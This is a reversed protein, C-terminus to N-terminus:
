SVTVNDFFIHGVESTINVALDVTIKLGIVRKLNEPKCSDGNLDRYQFWSLPFSNTMWNTLVTDHRFFYTVENGDEDLAIITFGMWYHANFQHTDVNLMQKESWDQEEDFMFTVVPNPYGSANNTWFMLTSNSKVNGDEDSAVKCVGNVGPKTNEVYFPFSILDHDEVTAAPVTPQDDTVNYLMLNDMYICNFQGAVFNSSMHVSFYLGVVKTLDADKLYDLNVYITRWTNRYYDYSTGCYRTEGDKDIYRVGATIHPYTNEAYIDFKMYDFGSIDTVNAFDVFFVPYGCEEDAGFCYADKTGNGNTSKSLTATADWTYVNGTKLLDSYDGSPLKSEVCGTELGEVSYAPVIDLCDIYLNCTGSGGYRALLKLSDSRLGKPATFLVQEIGMQYLSFQVLSWEGAKAVGVQTNYESDWYNAHIKVPDYSTLKFEVDQEMPNYVWFTVAANKWTRDTYYGTLAYHGLDLLEVGGNSANSFSVSLASTSQEGKLYASDNVVTKQVDEVKGGAVGDSALLMDMADAIHGMPILIEKSVTENNKEATIILTIEAYAKPTLKDNKVTLKRTTGTEPDVFNAKYSYEVGEEKVFLQTVEYAVDVYAGPIKDTLKIDLNSQPATAVPSNEVNPTGCGTFCVSLLILVACVFARTRKMM